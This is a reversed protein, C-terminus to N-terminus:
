KNGKKISNLSQIHSSYIKIIQDLAESDSYHPKEMDMLTNKYESSNLEENIIDRILSRLKQEAVSEEIGLLARLVEERNALGDKDDYVIFDEFGDDYAWQIIESNSMDAYQDLENENLEGEAVNAPLPMEFQNYKENYKTPVDLLFYDGNQTLKGNASLVKVLKKFEGTLESMEEPTIGTGM